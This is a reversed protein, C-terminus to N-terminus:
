VDADAVYFLLSPPRPSNGGDVFVTLKTVTKTGLQAKHQSLFYTIGVGNPAALLAKGEDTTTTFSTGPWAGLEKKANKLARAILAQSPKNEVPSSIIHRINGASKGAKSTLGAWQLFTVDSWSKLAPFVTVPPNKKPGMYAPSYKGWAIIVGDDPNFVTTYSAGTPNAITKENEHEWLVARNKGGDSKIKADVGLGELASTLPLSVKFDYYDDYELSGYGWKELDDPFSTFKSQASELPPNYMKGAEKDTAEMQALLVAGKCVAKDWEEDSAPETAPTTFTFGLLRTVNEVNLSTVIGNFPATSRPNQKGNPQPLVFAAAVALCIALSWLKLM